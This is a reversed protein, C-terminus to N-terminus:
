VSSPKGNARFLLFWSGVLGVVIGLAQKVITELWERWHEVVVDWLWEM